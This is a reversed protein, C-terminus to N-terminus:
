DILSSAFVPASATVTPSASVAADLRVSAPVDSLVVSTGFLAALMANPPLPVLRVTVIM